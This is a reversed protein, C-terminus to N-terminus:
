RLAPLLSVTKTGHVKQDDGIRNRSISIILKCPRHKIGAAGGLSVVVCFAPRPKFEAEGAQHGVFDYGSAGARLYWALSRSSIGLSFVRVLFATTRAVQKSTKHHLIANCPSLTTPPKATSNSM